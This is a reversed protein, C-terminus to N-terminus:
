TQSVMGGALSALAGVEREREGLGRGGEVGGTEAKSAGM